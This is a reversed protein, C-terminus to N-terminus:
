RSQQNARYAEKQDLKKEFLIFAAVVCTAAKKHMSEIELSDFELLKKCHHRPM